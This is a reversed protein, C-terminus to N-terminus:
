SGGLGKSSISCSMRTSSCSITFISASTVPDFRSAPFHGVFSALEAWDIPFRARNAFQKAPAFIGDVVVLALVLPFGLLDGLQDVIQGPLEEFAVFVTVLTAGNSLISM